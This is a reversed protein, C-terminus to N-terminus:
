RTGIATLVGDMDATYVTGQDDVAVAAMVHLRPTVQYTWLIRGTAADLVTLLGRNSCVYVRGAQETPPIPFRGLPVDAEWVLKGDADYKALKDDLTRAYVSRGDQSSGIASCNGRLGGLYAGTVDYVGLQYGRDTVFLRDGAYVPPCDAAAFYHSEQGNQGTPCRQKWKISGDTLGIRYVFGDWAGFCFTDGVFVGGSEISFTAPRVAWIRTGDRLRVAHVYGENDGVYVTGDRVIPRSYVPANAAYQWLKAGTAASVAYVNGDGSGFVVRDDDAAPTALVEGATRYRWLVRLSRDFATVVGGTDAVILTERCLLPGAKFGAGNQYRRVAHRHPDNPPISVLFDTARDYTHDSADTVSIRVFHRGPVLGRTDLSIVFGDRYRRLKGGYEGEGDIDFVARKVPLDSPKMRFTVETSGGFEVAPIPAPSAIEVNCLPADVALPRELLGRMPRGDHFRYAVRLTGRIVAVVNYGANPGFTSGGMVRDINQWQGASVGHGHGDLMLAVRHGQIVDLLRLQEYPAAFETGTLPHHLFVFVPTGRKVRALDGRLWELTRRDLCPLPEQPGATNLGVFHCGFRDFSYSDGGHRKRMIAFMSTWTMDHNGPVVFLECPLTSFYREFDSWTEGIVGYETLDGTAIVFAPPPAIIKYPDMRQPHHAEACLWRITKGSEDNQHPKTGPPRPSIHLDSVQVFCFDPVPSPAARATGCALLAEAVAAVLHWVRTNWSRRGARCTANFGM